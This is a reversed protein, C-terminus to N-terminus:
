WSSDQLGYLAQRRRFALYGGESCDLFADRVDTESLDGGCVLEMKKGDDLESTILIKEADMAVPVNASGTSWIIQRAKLYPKALVEDFLERGNFIDRPQNILLPRADELTRFQLLRKLEQIVDDEFEGLSGRGDQIDASPWIKVPCGLTKLGPNSAPEFATWGGAASRRYWTTAAEDPNAHRGCREVCYAADDYNWYVRVLDPLWTKPSRPMFGQAGFAYGLLRVLTSKGGSGVVCNLYPSFRVCLGDAYSGEGSVAMGLIVPHRTDCDLLKIRDERKVKADAQYNYGDETPFEIVRSQGSLMALRLAAFTEDPTDFPRLDIKVNTYRSGLDEGTGDCEIRCEHADSGKIFCLPRARDRRRGDEALWRLTEWAVKKKKGKGAIVEGHVKELATLAPHELVKRLELGKRFLRLLGKFDSNSHAPVAIGGNEAVLAMTDQVSSTAAAIFGQGWQEEPIGIARLIAGIRGPVFWKPPFVALMHVASVTIEVGPLLVLRRLPNSTENWHALRELIRDERDKRAKLQKTGAEKHQSKTTSDARVTPPEALENEAWSLRAIVTDRVRRGADERLDRVYEENVAQLAGYWTGLEQLRPVVFGPHNHDTLAVVQLEEIYCRLVFEEPFFLRAIYNEVDRFALKLMEYQRGSTEISDADTEDGRERCVTDIWTRAIRQLETVNLTPAGCLRPRKTVDDSRLAESFPNGGCAVGELFSYARRCAARVGSKPHNEKFIAELPEPLAYSSCESAPTHTHLDVRCYRAGARYGLLQAYENELSKARTMM